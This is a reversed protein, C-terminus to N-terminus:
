DEYIKFKLKLKVLKELDKTTGTEIGMKELRYARGCMRNLFSREEHTLPVNIIGENDCTCSMCHEGCKECDGSM